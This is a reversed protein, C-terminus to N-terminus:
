DVDVVLRTENLRLTPSICSVGLEMCLSGYLVIIGYLEVLWLNGGLAM